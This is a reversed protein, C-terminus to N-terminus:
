LDEELVKIHHPNGFTRSVKDHMKFLKDTLNDKQSAHLSGLQQGFLNLRIRPDNKCSIFEEHVILVWQCDKVTTSYNTSNQSSTKPSESVVFWRDVQTQTYDNNSEDPPFVVLDIGYEDRFENRLQQNVIESHITTTLEDFLSTKLMIWDQYLEIGRHNPDGADYVKTIKKSEIWGMVGVRGYFMASYAHKISTVYVGDGWTFGPSCSIMIQNNNKFFSGLHKPPFFKLVWIKDDTHVYENKFINTSYRIWAEIEQDLNVKQRLKPM